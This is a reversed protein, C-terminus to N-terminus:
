GDRYLQSISAIDDDALGLDIAAQYRERVATLVPLPGTSGSMLNLALRADKLGLSMTWWTPGEGHIVAALRNKLGPALMPSSELLEGLQDDSLGGARGAALSEALGVIGALLLANGTLKAVNALPATPYRHHTESLSDILPRARDFADDNGGVLYTATGGRVADPSGAIPMALFNVFQEALEESLGPSITSAEIYLQDAIHAAIGASGLAVERVADDTALTTIVVEAGAIAPEIEEFAHAGAAVPEATKDTSRNWVVVDHETDVLRTAVAQGMRGM